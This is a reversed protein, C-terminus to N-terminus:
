VAPASMLTARMELSVDSSCGPVARMGLPWVDPANWIYTTSLFIKPPDSFTLTVVCTAFQVFPKAEIVIKKSSGIGFRICKAQLATGEGCNIPSGNGTVM